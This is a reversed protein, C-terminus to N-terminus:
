GRESPLRGGVLAGRGGVSIVGRWSVCCGVLECLGGDPRVNGCGVWDVCGGVSWRVMWGIGGAVYVVWVGM